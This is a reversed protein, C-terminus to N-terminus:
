RYDWKWTCNSIITEM